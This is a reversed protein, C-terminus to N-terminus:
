HRRSQVYRWRAAPKGLGRQWQHSHRSTMHSNAVLRPRQSGNEAQQWMWRPPVPLRLQEGLRCDWYSQLLAWGPKRVRSDGCGDRRLLEGAWSAPILNGQGQIEGFNMYTNSQRGRLRLWRTPCSPECVEEKWCDRRGGGQSGPEPRCMVTSM